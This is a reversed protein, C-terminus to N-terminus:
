GAAFCNGASGTNWSKSRAMNQLKQDKMLKERLASLLVKDADTFSGKYQENIKEIIEDLPKKEEPIADGTASAPTYTGKEDKLSISGEFTKQLKYYELKLKGELDIMQIKDEPLLGILYSLFVYEKHLEEDFMRAVQAVYGYWKVFSRCKRRFQYRDDPSLRNYRDAVPKLISTMRGM